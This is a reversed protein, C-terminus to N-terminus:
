WGIFKGDKVHYKVRGNALVEAEYIAEDDCGSEYVKFYAVNGCYQNGKACSRAYDLAEKKTDFVESGYSSGAKWQGIYVIPELSKELQCIQELEEVTLDNLSNIDGREEDYDKFMWQIFNSDNEELHYELMEAVTPKVGDILQVGQEIEEEITQIIYNFDKLKM